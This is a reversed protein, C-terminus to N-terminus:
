VMPDIYGFQIAKNYAEILNTVNLKRYIHAIHNYLTKESIYFEKAIFKRTYGKTLANLIETEKPTLLISMGKKVCFKQGQMVRNLKKILENIEISKTLYDNVGLKLANIKYMYLDYTTLIVIKQNPENLLVKKIVDFGTCNDSLNIDILLIDYDKLNLKDFFDYINNEYDCIEVEECAELISKLSQGFLVHDDLLFLKM